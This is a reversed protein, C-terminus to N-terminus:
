WGFINEICILEGDSSFWACIISCRYTGLWSLVYLSTPEPLRSSFELSFVDSSMPACCASTDAEQGFCFGLLERCVIWCSDLSFGWWSLEPSAVQRYWWPSSIGVCALMLSLSIKNEWSLNGSAAERRTFHLSAKSLSSFGSGWIKLLTIWSRVAVRM